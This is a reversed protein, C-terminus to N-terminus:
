LAAGEPIDPEQRNIASWLRAYLRDGLAQQAAAKLRSTRTARKLVGSRPDLLQRLFADTAGALINYRGVEGFAITSTAEPTSTWVTTYGAEHCARLVRANSRGGPLSMSTVPAAIWDELAARADHLERHLEIDSCGTLLAHSWGHAGITHGASHLERLHQPTMYATRTGTWGATIFFHATARAQQLMPMANAHNSIHGDDFTLVPVFSSPAQEKLVSFLALHQAFRECSLVYSYASLEPRLEHYLVPLLQSAAAKVADLDGRDLM